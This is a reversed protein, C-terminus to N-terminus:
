SGSIFSSHGRGPDRLRSVVCREQSWARGAVQLPSFAPRAPLPVYSTWLVAMGEGRSTSVGHVTALRARLSLRAHHPPPPLSATQIRTAFAPQPSGLRCAWAEGGDPQGPSSPKTAVGGQGCQTPTTHITAAQPVSVQGSM